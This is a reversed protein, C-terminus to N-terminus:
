RATLLMVGDVVIHDGAKLGELVAIKDGMQAGTTIATKEFIGKSLERWVLTKGDTAIVAAAPIAPRTESDEALQISGFMEPKLRGDANALEARVKLTRTQPDVMDGILTVRGRFTENPYAALAIRVPEGARILRIANEPVDSTVWVSSLDAITMLPASLDNRFEGNVVSVELVKGSIPAHVTLQQGFTNAGAGLIQLRRRAQESVAQAQEVAAQAQVTVAQANYVDKQPLAGHEFLDKV